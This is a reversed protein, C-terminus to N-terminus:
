MFSDAEIKGRENREKIAKRVERSKRRGAREERRKCGM